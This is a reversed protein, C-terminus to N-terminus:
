EEVSDIRCVTKGGVRISNGGLIKETENLLMDIPARLWRIQENVKLPQLGSRLKESLREYISESALQVRGSVVVLEIQDSTANVITEVPDHGRDRVAIIDAISGPRLHGEGRVLRFISAPRTTVMEYLTKKDVGIETDAFRMEDLLDGTATLPSDSGLALSDVSSLLSPTPIQNFLFQNSTPCTVLSSRRKNLLSVGERSLALGHVLVTRDSLVQLQDLQFIEDASQQDIGEAAHIIFPYEDPTSHFKNSVQTDLKVSHAWGFKQLVRIPFDNGLLEPTLPNHHCVTTVGCLLNRIGGWWLRIDKPVSSHLAIVDAHTRHIDDAWHAANEYPGEGLNPYLAFELHDHANILGPFLLYGRLDVLDATSKSDDDHLRPQSSIWGINDHEIAVTAPTHETPGLAYCAGTFQISAGEKSPFSQDLHAKAPKRLHLIYIAPLDAIADYAALKGGQAFLSREPLGFSPEIFTQVEFGAARFPHIIESLSHQYTQLSIENGNIKFTRRWDCVTATAPHMDTIFIDAEARTVRDFEKVVEEIDQVYSLVFSALVLAASSHRVPLATCSGQLIKVGPISKTSAQLLMEPSTDVGTLTKPSEDALLKLWRGTGCGVDLVDLKQIDPLLRLLMREELALLPNLQNDYVSAWLDFAEQSANLDFGVPHEGSKPFAPNM